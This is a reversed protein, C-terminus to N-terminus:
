SFAPTCPPRFLEAPRHAVKIQNSEYYESTITTSIFRSDSIMAEFGSADEQSNESNESEGTDQSTHEVPNTYSSTASQYSLAFTSLTLVLALAIKICRLSAKKMGEM